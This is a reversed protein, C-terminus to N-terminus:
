RAEGGGENAHMRARAGLSQAAVAAGRARDDARPGGGSGRQAAGARKEEMVCAREPARGGGAAGGGRREDLSDRERAPHLGGSGRKAPARAGEDCGVGVRRCTQLYERM